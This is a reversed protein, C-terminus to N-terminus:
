RRPWMHNENFPISQFEPSLSLTYLALGQLASFTLAVDPLRRKDWVSSSFAKSSIDELAKKAERYQSIHPWKSLYQEVSSGFTHSDKDKGQKPAVLDMMKGSIEYTPGLQFGIKKELDKAVFDICWCVRRVKPSSLLYRFSSSESIEQGVCAQGLQVTYSDGTSLYLQLAKLLIVRQNQRDRISHMHYTIAVQPPEGTATKTIMKDLQEPKNISYIHLSLSSDLYIDDIYMDDDRGIMPSVTESASAVSEEEHTNFADEDSSDEDWDTDFVNNVKPGNFKQKTRKGTGKLPIQMTNPRVIQKDWSDKETTWKEGGVSTQFKVPAEAPPKPKEQKAQKEYETLDFDVDIGHKWKQLSNNVLDKWSDDDMEGEEAVRWAFSGTSQDEYAQMYTMRTPKAEDVHKTTNQPLTSRSISPSTKPSQSAESISSKQWQIYETAVPVKFSVTRETTAPLPKPSVAKKLIPSANSQQAREAAHTIRPSRNNSKPSEANSRSWSSWREAGTIEPSEDPNGWGKPGLKSTDVADARQQKVDDAFNPEVSQIDAFQEQASIKESSANSSSGSGSTSPEDGLTGIIRDKQKEFDELSRRIAEKMDADDEDDVDVDFSAPTFPPAEVRLQSKGKSKYCPNSPPSETRSSSSTETQDVLVVTDQRSTPRLNQARDRQWRDLAKRGSEALITHPWYYRHENPHDKLKEYLEVLSVVDFVAYVLAEKPLPKKLWVCDPGLFQFTNGLQKAKEFEGYGEWDGAYKSMAAGLAMQEIAISKIKAQLDLVSGMSLKFATEIAQADARFAWGVLNLEDSQLIHALKEKCVEVGVQDVLVAYGCTKSIAIQLVKLEPLANKSGLFECDLAVCKSALIKPIIADLEDATTISQATIVSNQLKIEITTPSVITWNTAPDFNLLVTKRLKRPSPEVSTQPTYKKMANLDRGQGILQRLPRTVADVLAHQQNEYVSLLRLAAECVSITNKWYEQASITLGVVDDHPPM